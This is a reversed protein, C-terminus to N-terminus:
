PRADPTILIDEVRRKLMRPTLPRAVAGPGTGPPRPVSGSLCPAQVAAYNLRPEPRTGPAPPDPHARRRLRNAIHTAEGALDDDFGVIMELRAITESTARRRV